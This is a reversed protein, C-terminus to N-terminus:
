KNLLCLQLSHVCTIALASVLGRGPEDSAPEPPIIGKNRSFSQHREIKSAGGLTWQTRGLLSLLSPKLTQCWKHSM